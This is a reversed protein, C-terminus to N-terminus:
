VKITLLIGLFRSLPHTFNYAVLIMIVRITNTYDVLIKAIEANFNVCM